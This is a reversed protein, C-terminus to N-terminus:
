TGATSPALLRQLAPRLEPDHFVFGRDVLRRPVAQAGSLFLEDAMEGAAARLLFAPVRFFAPRTLVRGLTRTFQRNTVAAPSVANVPGQLTEDGVVCAVVRVLDDLTIWSMYQRGSGLPGGLGLRFIPLLKALVGGRPSLVLGIRLWVVRLGAEAALQAAAEWQRCVDALFGAGPPSDEDLLEGGRNGYFGIASASVLVKPRRTTRALSQCLRQTGQVRSDRIRAKKATSWRADSIGEGALHIVADFEELRDADLPQQEPHWAIETADRAARRVLRTVQHAQSTLFDVVASGVFGSSGSILIRM